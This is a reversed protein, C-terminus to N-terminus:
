ANTIGSDLGKVYYCLDKFCIHTYKMLFKIRTHPLRFRAYAETCPRGTMGTISEMIFRCCEAEEGDFRIDDMFLKLILKYRSAITLKCEVDSQTRQRGLISDFCAYDGCKELVSQSYVRGSVLKMSKNYIAKKLYNIFKKTTDVPFRDSRLKFVEFMYGIVDSAIQECNMPDLNIHVRVLMGVLPFVSEMLKSLVFDDKSETYLVFLSYILDEDCKGVFFSVSSM